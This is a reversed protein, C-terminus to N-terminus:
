AAHLTVREVFDLIDRMGPSEGLKSALKRDDAIRKMLASWDQRSSELLGEVVKKPAVERLAQEVEDLPRGFLEHVVAQDHVLVIELEPVFLVLRWLEPRAARNLLTHLNGRQEELLRQHTTDADIALVVPEGRHSLLTGAVSVAHSRGLARVIQYRRPDAVAGTVAGILEADRPGEVVISLTM